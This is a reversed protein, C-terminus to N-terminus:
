SVWQDVMLAPATATRALTVENGNITANDIDNATLIFSNVSTTGLGNWQNGVM